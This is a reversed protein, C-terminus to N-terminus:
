ILRRSPKAQRGFDNAFAIKIARAVGRMVPLRHFVGFVDFEDPPLELFRASEGLAARFDIAPVRSMRVRFTSEGNGGHLKAYRERGGEEILGSRQHQEIPVAAHLHIVAAGLHTLPQM